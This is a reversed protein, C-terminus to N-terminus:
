TRCSGLLGGGIPLSMGSPLGFHYGSASIVDDLLNIAPNVPTGHEAIVKNMVMVRQALALTMAEGQNHTVYLSTTRLRSHLYQLELRVQM